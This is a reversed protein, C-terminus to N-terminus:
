RRKAMHDLTFLVLGILVDALLLYLYIDSTSQVAVVLLGFGILACVIAAVLM